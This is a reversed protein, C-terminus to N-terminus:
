DTFFEIADVQLYGPDTTNAPLFGTSGTGVCQPFFTLGTVSSEVASWPDKPDIGQDVAWSPVAALAFRVEVQTPSPGVSVNWGFRVGKNTATQAPSELDLRLMRSQDARVQFRIGSMSRLDRSGSTFPISMNIWQGWANAENRYEFDLKLDELGALPTSTNLSQSVTTSANSMLASGLTLGLPDLDEFGNVAMTSLSLPVIPVDDRLHILRARLVPLSGKLQSVSSKWVTATPGLPDTAVSENIFASLEDIKAALAAEAFPGDLLEQVAAQYPSKNTALAQFVLDCGPALVISGGWVPYTLSCDSPSKDWRPVQMFTAQPVLTSDMDWPILHFSDRAQEQYWYYNHNVTFSRQADTYYATIGDWNMVADDVAMYRYLSPLDSWKELANTRDAPAAAALEGYFQVFAEPSPTATNTELHSTYYSPDSTIPWAEKFLNGNGDDPWRNSTFAGDIEEVMSFLGLSEGNVKLNAWASRPSAIGMERYLDYTIREHLKSPDRVMSHFNVRKLGYFRLDKDYESFKVKMSLKTCTLNGQDDLCGKLTGYSGKFRLGVGGVPTGEFSLCAEEFQEDLAHAKLYAWREAPLTLDFSPVTTYGFLDAADRTACDSCEMGCVESSGGADTQGGAGGADAGKGGGGLGQPSPPNEGCAVVALAMALASTKLYAFRGFTM